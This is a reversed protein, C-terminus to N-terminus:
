VDLLYYKYLQLTDWRQFTVMVKLHVKDWHCGRSTGKACKFLLYPMSDMDLFFYVFSYNM